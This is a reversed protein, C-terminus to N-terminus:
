GFAFDIGGNGYVCWESGSDNDEYAAGEGKCSSSIMFPPKTIKLDRLMPIRVMITGRALSWKDGPFRWDGTPQGNNMMIEIPENLVLPLVSTNGARFVDGSIEIKVPITSGAPLAVVQKQTPHQSFENLTVVPTDSPVTVNNLQQAFLPPALVCLLWGVSQTLRLWNSRQKGRDLM